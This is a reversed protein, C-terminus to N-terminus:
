SKVAPCCLDLTQASIWAPAASSPCFWCRSKKPSPIIEFLREPGKRGCAPRDWPLMNAAHSRASSSFGQIMVINLKRGCHKTVPYKARILSSRQHGEPTASAPCSSSRLSCSPLWVTISLLGGPDPEGFNCNTWKNQYISSQMISKCWYIDWSLFLKVGFKLGDKGLSMLRSKLTESVRRNTIQQWMEPKCPRFLGM